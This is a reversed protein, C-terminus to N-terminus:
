TVAFSRMGNGIRAAMLTATCVGHKDDEGPSVILKGVIKLIEPPTAGIIEPQMVGKKKQIDQNAM